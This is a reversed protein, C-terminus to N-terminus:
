EDRLNAYGAASFLGCHRSFARSFFTGITYHLYILIITGLRSFEFYNFLLCVTPNTMNWSLNVDEYLTDLISECEDRFKPVDIFGGSNCAVLLTHLGQIVEELQPIRLVAAFLAANEM